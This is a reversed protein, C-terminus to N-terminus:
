EDSFSKEDLLGLKQFISFFKPYMRMVPKLEGKIKGQADKGEMRFAFIHQLAIEQREVGRVESIYTIKRSGDSLQEQQIVIDLTEAVMKRIEQNPLKIGSSLILTELRSLVESPSNGHMVALTGKHGTSMAQIMDLAEEGRIEGVIIRDPRMRLANKILDRLTVGGKEDEDPDRTELSVLNDQHVKLEATDEITVIREDESIYCSLMELTTTKGSGTAGSILINLKGAICAKLFDAAKKTLTGNAILDELSKIKSSFKRITISPGQRALPPIIANVRSGDKLCIDGYPRNKDVRKGQSSFLTTIIQMIEEQDKFSIELKSTQGFKEVFVGGTGNIMIETIDVDSLLKKIKEYGDM